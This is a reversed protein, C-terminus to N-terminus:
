REKTGFRIMERSRGGGATLVAELRAHGYIGERLVEARPIGGLPAPFFWDATVFLKLNGVVLLM